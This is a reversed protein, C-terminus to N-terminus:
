SRYGKEWYTIFPECSSFFFAFSLPTGNQSVSLRVMSPIEQRNKPWQDAWAFQANVSQSNSETKKGLLQFHFDDIRSLLIEKRWPRNKESKELPWIALSSIGNGM